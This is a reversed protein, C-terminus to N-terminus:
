LEQFCDPAIGHDPRGLPLHERADKILAVIHIIIHVLLLAPETGLPIKHGGLRGEEAEVDAEAVDVLLDREVVFLPVGALDPEMRLGLRATVFIDVPM